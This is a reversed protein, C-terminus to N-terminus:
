RHHHRKKKIRWRYTVPTPDVNGSDDIATITIKHRGYRKFRKKLPSTCSHRKNRDVKCLFTAPETASFLFVARRKHSRRKPGHGLITDPPTVDPYFEDAGIDMVGQYPRAEGDLDLTGTSADTAGANITPSTRAQHYSADAFVPATKQNTGTGAATVFGGTGVEALDYNSNQLVVDSDLNTSGARLTSRVDAAAGSAIVNRADIDLNTNSGDADARIGYSGAGTAIATVNRLVLKGTGGGWSDDLAIGGTQSTTTVCLSDRVVGSIGPSCAVPGSSHVEVRQVLVGTTFLNLGYQSGSHNIVLDSVKVGTASQPFSIAASATSNIVPRPRGAEGHINLNTVTRTLVTATTYTGPLITIDDGSSASNIAKEINCATAPTLCNQASTGAPSAFRPGAAHAPSALGAQAVLAGVVVAPVVLLRRTHM